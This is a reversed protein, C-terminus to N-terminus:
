TEDHTSIQLANLWLRTLTRVLHDLDIPKSGVGYVVYATRSVMASVALAALDPDLSPDARGSDQLRRILAANRTVFTRTRRLRLRRFADDVTALQELMVMLKANRQYALLYARNALEIGAVVDGARSSVNPVPHLMEDEVQDLLAALVDDKSTFHSYFSGHAVGAASSIDTIRARVYGDREFVIRAADILKRRNRAADARLPRRKKARVAGSPPM